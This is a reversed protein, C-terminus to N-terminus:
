SKSNYLEEAWKLRKCADEHIREAKEMMEKVEKDSLM